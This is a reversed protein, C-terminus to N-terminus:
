VMGADDETYTTVAVAGELWTWSAVTVEVEVVMAYTGLAVGVALVFPVVTTGNVPEAPRTSSPKIPITPATKANATPRYLSLSIEIGHPVHEPAHSLPFIRPRPPSLIERVDHLRLKRKLLPIM